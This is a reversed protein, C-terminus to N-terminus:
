SSFESLSHEKEYRLPLTVIFSTGQDKGPSVAEITGNHLEVFSKTISLGLGNSTEKGTPKSSLKAFKTFLREIDSEDLGQGNDKVEIRIHGNIETAIVKIEAGHYSYKIANSLLNHLIDSIKAKDAFFQSTSEPLDFIISQGKRAALLDFNSQLRMFLEKLDIEEIFLVIQNEELESQKLLDSLKSKIRGVSSKIMEAMNPIKTGDKSIIENALKISALPNKIEHLTINMLDIQSEITKRYRLRNELKDVVIKALMKLMNIQLPTVERPHTDIVSITGVNYGEPTKLPVAAFFRVGNEGSVYPNERVHPITHTDNFVVVDDQLIVLSSLSEERKAENFALPSLNSKIFIRDEDIFSIFASPCSFVQTVMLAIKDFTDESHTDLIHYDRLKELRHSENKTLLSTPKVYQM